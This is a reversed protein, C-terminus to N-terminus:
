LGMERAVIERYFTADRYNVAAASSRRSYLPLDHEETGATRRECQALHNPTAKHKLYGM